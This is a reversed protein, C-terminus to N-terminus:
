PTDDDFDFYEDEEPEPTKQQHNQEKGAGLKEKWEQGERRIDERWKERLAQTDYGVTFNDTSGEVKLLIRSGQTSSSLDDNQRTRLLSRLPIALRYNIKQDFSHRGSILINSVNSRVEMPPLVILRNEIRISKNELQAFRLHKLTKSDVYKSLQQVPEFAILEGNVIRTDIDAVISQPLLRLHQDLQLYIKTGAHMQGLIHESRLWSQGFNGFVYFVSDIDIRDLQADTLVEVRSRQATSVTGNFVLLGGMTNMRVNEFDATRRAIQLHGRIERAQFRKFRTSKIRCDFDLRLEPAISFTYPVGNTQVTDLSAFNSRLLEDFDIFDAELDAQIDIYRSRAFLYGLVNKFFGNLRFDSKGVKGSFNSIALDNNNFIFSGNFRNFPLREGELVFSVNRLAVEGHANFRDKRRREDLDRIRGSGKLNLEAKGFATKVGLGPALNILTNIDAGGKIDFEVLPNTFDLISLNAQLKEKDIMCNLDRIQLQYSEPSNAVGSRFSGSFSASELGKKYKPHYFSADKSGFDLMVDLGKRLNYRGKAKGNFYVDGKSRYPRYMSAYQHPLLSLLTLFNTDRGEVELDLKKSSADVWGSVAFTGADITLAAEEIRYTKGELDATIRGNLGIEKEKLFIKDDVNLYSWQSGGRLWLRMISGEQNITMQASRLVVDFSVKNQTDGYSLQLDEILLQRLDLITGEKDIRASDVEHFVRYNPIGGADIRLRMVAGKMRANKIVIRGRFAAPLDLAFSLEDARLLTSDSQPNSESISFRHFIVQADPFSRWLSFEIREVQAPTNIRKNAETLFLQVIQDSHFVFVYVTALLALAATSALALFIGRIISRAKM